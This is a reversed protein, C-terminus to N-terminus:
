RFEIGNERELDASKQTKPTNRWYAYGAYIIGVFGLIWYPSATGACWILFVISAWFVLSYGAMRTLLDPSALVFLALIVLILPIVWLNAVVTDFM